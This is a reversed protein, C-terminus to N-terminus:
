VTADAGIGSNGNLQLTLSVIPPNFTITVEDSFASLLDLDGTDKEIVQLKNYLVGDPVSFTVKLSPIAGAPGFGFGDTGFSSGGFGTDSFPPLSAFAKKRIDFTQTAPVLPTGENLQTFAHVNPNNVFQDWPFPVGTSSSSYQTHNHM